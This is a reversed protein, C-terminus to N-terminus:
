NGRHKLALLCLDRFKAIAKRSSSIPDITIKRLTALDSDKAAKVVEALLPRFREHTPASFDPAEPMKGTKAAEATGKWDYRNHSSHGATKKRAEDTRKARKPSASVPATSTEGAAKRYVGMRKIADM